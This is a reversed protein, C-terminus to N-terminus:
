NSKAYILRVQEMITEPKIDVCVPLGDILHCGLYKYPGRHCPSCVAPSQISYDNSAYKCHNELSAATMIQVTPTGWANSACLLGSECGIVCDAHKIRAVAERFPIKGIWTSTRESHEIDRAKTDGTTIIHANPIEELIQNALQDSYKLVKHKGTGNLNLVVTFKGEHEQMKARAMESESDSFYLEGNIKGVWHDLGAAHATIDYYSGAGFRRREKDSQFYIARDEMALCGYELSQFLNIYRDYDQSMQFWKNYLSSMPLEPYQSGEFVTLNDIYPNRSLL